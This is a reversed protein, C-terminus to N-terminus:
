LLREAARELGARFDPHAVAILARARESLTRGRLHAAGHETVVVDADGRPSTVVGGSLSAVIRSVSGARATSELAVISRGGPSRMCGRLFDAHGGILGVHRHGAVEANIQGSLDVELAGNIGHLSPIAGLVAVDHTYRSARLHLRPNRHAWRYLRNTGLLANTVGIGPDVPKRRNTIVGAEVLDAVRDGIVGSHLGLDRKAGLCALVADPIAGLGLQLTAGDPVLRAVHEGIARATADADPAHWEVVPHPVRLCHDVDAADVPPEGFTCPARDNVQAVVVRAAPIADGVYDAQLTLRQGAGDPALQVLVVDVGLEGSRVLEPLASYNAPLVDLTGETAFRANTAAGGLARVRMRRTLRGADVTRSLSFGVLVSARPMREMQADLIELLATPEAAAGGWAITDGARVLAALDLRGPDTTVKM